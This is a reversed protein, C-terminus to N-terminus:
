NLFFCCVIYVFLNLDLLLHLVSYLTQGQGQCCLSLSVSMQLSDLSKERHSLSNPIIVLQLMMLCKSVLEVLSVYHLGGPILGLTCQAGWWWWWWWQLSLLLNQHLNLSFQVNLELIQTQLKLLSSYYKKRQRKKWKRVPETPTHKCLQCSVAMVWLQLGLILLGSIGVTTATLSSDRERVSMCVCKWVM